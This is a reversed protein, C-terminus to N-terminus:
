MPYRAKVPGLAERGASAWCPWGRGCVHGTGHTGGHTSKPQQDLGQSCWPTQGTSVAAGEMPSCVGEAGETREGVGGDLVGLSLGITPQLSRGRYILSQCLREPSLWILSLFYSRLKVKKPRGTVKVVWRVRREELAKGLRQTDLSGSVLCETKSYSCAM